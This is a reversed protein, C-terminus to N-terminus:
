KRSYKILDLCYSHGREILNLGRHGTFYGSLCTGVEKRTEKKHEVINKMDEIDIKRKITVLTSKKKSSEKKVFFMKLIKDVM